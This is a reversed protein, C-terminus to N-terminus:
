VNEFRMKLGKIICIYFKLFNDTISFNWIYCNEAFVIEWTENPAFPTM